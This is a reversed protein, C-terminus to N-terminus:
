ANAARFLTRLTALTESSADAPLQGLYRAMHERALRQVSAPANGLDEMLRAKFAKLAAEEEPLLAAAQAARDLQEAKQKEAKARVDPDTSKLDIALQTAEEETPKAHEMRESRAENLDAFLYDAQAVDAILRGCRAELAADDATKAPVKNLDALLADLAGAPANVIQVQGRRAMEGIVVAMIRRDDDTLYQLRQGLQEIEKGTVVGRHMEAGDDAARGWTIGALFLGAFINGEGRNLAGEDFQTVEHLVDTFRSFIYAQNAAVARPPTMTSELERTLADFGEQPSPAPAVPDLEQVIGLTVLHAANQLEKRDNKAMEPNARALAAEVEKRLAIFAEDGEDRRLQKYHARLAPGASPSRAIDGGLNKLANEDKASFNDFVLRSQKFFLWFAGLTFISALVIGVIELADEAKTNQEIKVDVGGLADGEAARNEAPPRYGVTAVGM